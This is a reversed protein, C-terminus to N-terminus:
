SPLSPLSVRRAIGVRSIGELSRWERALWRMGAKTQFKFGLRAEGAVQSMESSKGTCDTYLRLISTFKIMSTKIIVCNIKLM